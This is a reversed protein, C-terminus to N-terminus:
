NHIYQVSVLNSMKEQYGLEKRGKKGWGVNQLFNIEKEGIKMIMILFIVRNTCYNKLILYNNLFFVTLFWCLTAPLFNKPPEKQFDSSFKSNPIEVDFSFVSM